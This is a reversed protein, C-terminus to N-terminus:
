RLASTGWTEHPRCRRDRRNLPVPAVSPPAVTRRSQTRGDHVGESWRILLQGDLGTLWEAVEILVENAFADITDPHEFTVTINQHGRRRLEEITGRLLDVGLRDVRGRVTIASHDEDITESYTWDDHAGLAASASCM